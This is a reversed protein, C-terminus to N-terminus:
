GTLVIYTMSQVNNYIVDPSLNTSTEKVPNLVNGMGICKGEANQYYGPRCAFCKTENSPNCSLCGLEYTNQSCKRCVGGSFYSGPACVACVATSQMQSDYCNGDFFGRTSFDICRDKEISRVFGPQCRNCTNVTDYEECNAILRSVAKCVGSVPFFGPNCSLCTTGDALSPKACNAIVVQICDYKSNANLTRRFFKTEDCTACDTSANDVTLCNKGTSATCANSQLYM